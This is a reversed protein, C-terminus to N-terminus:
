PFPLRALLVVVSIPPIPKSTRPGQSKQKPANLLKHLRKLNYDVCVLNSEPSVKQLGRLLFQESGLVKKIIGFLPEISAQRRLYRRSGEPTRLKQEMAVLVPAKRPRSKETRKTKSRLDYRRREFAEASLAVCAEIGEAQLQEIVPGNIYGSDALVAQPRQALNRGVVELM